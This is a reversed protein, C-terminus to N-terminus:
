HDVDKHRAVSVFTGIVCKLDFLFSMKEVYAGDFAAKQRNNLIDRGNIQAWGTLGPLVSYANVQERLRILRKEGLIVPRPGVLAM